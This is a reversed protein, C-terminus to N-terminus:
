YVCSYILHRGRFKAFPPHPFLPPFIRTHFDHHNPDLCISTLDSSKVSREMGLVSLDITRVETQLRSIGFFEGDDFQTNLKLSLSASQKPVNVKMKETGSSQPGNNPSCHMTPDKSLIDRTKDELIFPISNNLVYFKYYRSLDMTM